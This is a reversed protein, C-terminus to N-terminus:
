AGEGSDFGSEGDGTIVFTLGYSVKSLQYTLCKFPVDGAGLATRDAHNDLTMLLSPRVRDTKIQYFCAERLRRKNCTNARSNGCNDM